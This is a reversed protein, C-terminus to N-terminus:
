ASTQPNAAAAARAQISRSLHHLLARPPPVHLGALAPWQSCRMLLLVLRWTCPHAQMGSVVRSGAGAALLAAAPLAGTPLLLCRCISSASMLKGLRLQLTIWCRLTRSDQLLLRCAIHCLGPLHGFGPLNSLLLLLLLLLKVITLLYAVTPKTNLLRLLLLQRGLLAAQGACHQLRCFFCFLVIPIHPQQIIVKIIIFLVLLWLICIVIFCAQVIYSFCVFCLLLLLQPLPAPLQHLVHLTGHLRWLLQLLQLLLLLHPLQLLLRL